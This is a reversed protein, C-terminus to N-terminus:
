ISCILHFGYSWFHDNTKRHCIIKCESCCCFGVPPCFCISFFFWFSFYTFYISAKSRDFHTVTMRSFTYQVCRHKICECSNYKTSTMAITYFEWHSAMCKKYMQQFFWRIRSSFTFDLDSHTDHKHPAAATLFLHLLHLVLLLLLVFLLTLLFQWIAVLVNFLM